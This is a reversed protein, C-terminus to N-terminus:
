LKVLKTTVQNGSNNKAKVIYISQTLDSINFSHGIEFAGNFEKVLKGTLDFIQINNMTRNVSFSTRVPNPYFSVKNTSDFNFDDVSLSVEASGYVKFEGPQLNITANVNTVNISANDNLLDYWTGTQQFEPNISQAVVGFNGSITVFELDPNAASNTLHIKKLGNSNAVDLTFDNTRFIDEQKKLKILKSWLDYVDKRDPEDFYNWLIPKNCVRCPDDISIDYGLEGFQWIMKPGPVTFYFAGALELRDLGTAENTIDYGGSSNGFNLNKYMMREEDHSEMYAVNAPVTWDRNLYSIWSFDSKGNDHYGLSAEGYPGDVRSWLM